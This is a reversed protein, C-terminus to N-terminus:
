RPSPPHLPLFPSFSSTSLQKLSIYSRHFSSNIQYSTRFRNPQLFNPGGFNPQVGRSRRSVASADKRRKEVEEAFMHTYEEQRQPLKHLISSVRSHKSALWPWVLLLFPFLHCWWDVQRSNSHSGTTKVDLYRILGWFIIALSWSQEM